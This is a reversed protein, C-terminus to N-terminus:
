TCSADGPTERAVPLRPTAGFEQRKMNRFPHIEILSQEWCHAGGHEDNTKGRLNGIRGQHAGPAM